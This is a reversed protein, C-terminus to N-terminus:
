APVPPALLAQEGKLALSTEEILDDKARIVEDAVGPRRVVIFLERWIITVMEPDACKAYEGLWWAGNGTSRSYPEHRRWVKGIVTGSPVTCSYDDLDELHELPITATKEDLKLGLDVLKQKWKEEEKTWDM